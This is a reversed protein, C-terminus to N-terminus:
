STAHSHVKQCQRCQWMHRMMQFLGCIIGQAPLYHCAPMTAQSLRGGVQEGSAESSCQQQQAPGDELTPASFSSGLQAIASSRAVANAQHIPPLLSSGEHRLSPGAAQRGQPSSPAARPSPVAGASLQEQVMALLQQALHSLQASQGAASAAAPSGCCSAGAATGATGIASGVGDSNSDAAQNEAALSTSSHVPGTSAGPGSSGSTSSAIDALCDSLMVLAQAHVQQQSTSSHRAHKATGHSSVGAYVPKYHSRLEPSRCEALQPPAAAAPDITLAGYAKSGSGASTAGPAAAGQAAAQGHQQEHQADAPLGDQSAAAAAAAASTSTAPDTSREAVVAAAPAKKDSGVRPLASSSAGAATWHQQVPAAARAAGEAAGEGLLQDLDSAPM